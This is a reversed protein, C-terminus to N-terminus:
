NLLLNSETISALNSYKHNQLINILFNNIFTIEKEKISLIGTNVNDLVLNVWKLKEEYHTQYYFATRLQKDILYCFMTFFCFVFTYCCLFTVTIRTILPDSTPYIYIWILVIEILNLFLFERFSFVYSIAYFLRFLVESLILFIMILFTKKNVFVILPYKFNAATFLFFIYGIYYNIRLITKNRSKYGIVLFVLNLGSNAYSTYRVILFELTNSEDRFYWNVTSTLISLLFLITNIMKAKNILYETKNFNYSKETDQKLFELTFNNKFIRDSM